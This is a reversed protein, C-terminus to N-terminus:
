QDQDLNFTIVVEVDTRRVPRGDRVEPKYRWRSLAKTAARGFTKVPEEDIIRINDVSGTPTIDFALRVWGEIGRQAPRVPYIPPQRVLPMPAGEFMHSGHEKPKFVTPEPKSWAVGSKADPDTKAVQPPPTVPREPQKPKDPLQPPEPPSTTDEITRLIEIAPLPTDEVLAQMGNSILSNMLWFIALTIAGAPALALSYRNRANTITHM